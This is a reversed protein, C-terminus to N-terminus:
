PLNLIFTNTLGNVIFTGRSLIDMGIAINFPQANEGIAYYEGSCYIDIPFGNNEPLILRVNKYLNMRGAGHVGGFNEVVRDPKVNALGLEDIIGQGVVTHYTGTDLLASYIPPLIMNGMGLAVGTLIPRGDIPITGYYLAM